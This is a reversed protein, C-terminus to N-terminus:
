PFSLVSIYCIHNLKRVKKNWPFQELTIFIISESFARVFLLWACPWHQAWRRSCAALCLGCLLLCQTKEAAPSIMNTKLEESVWRDGWGWWRIEKWVTGQSDKEECNGEKTWWKQWVCHEHPQRCLTLSREVLSCQRQMNHTIQSFSYM